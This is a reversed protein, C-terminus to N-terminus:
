LRCNFCPIWDTLTISSTRHLKTLNTSLQQLSPYPVTRSVRPLTVDATPLRSTSVLYSSTFVHREVSSYTDYHKTYHLSPNRTLSDLLDLYYDLSRRCDSCTRSLITLLKAVNKQNLPYAGEKYLSPRRKMKIPKGDQKKETIGPLYWSKSWVGEFKNDALLDIM